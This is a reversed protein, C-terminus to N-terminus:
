EDLAIIMSLKVFRPQNRELNNMPCPNLRIGLPFQTARKGGTRQYGDCLLFINQRKEVM